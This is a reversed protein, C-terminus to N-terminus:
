SDASGVWEVQENGQEFFHEWCDRACKLKVLKFSHGRTGKNNEELTFLEHLSIRTMGKSM